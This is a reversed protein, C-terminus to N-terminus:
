QSGHGFLLDSHLTLYHELVVVDSELAQTMAEMFLLHYFSIKQHLFLM